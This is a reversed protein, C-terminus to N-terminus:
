DEDEKFFPIASGKFDLTHISLPKQTFFNKDVRYFENFPIFDFRMFPFLSNLQTLFDQSAEKTRFHYKNTPTLYSEALVNQKMKKSRLTLMRWRTHIHHEFNRPYLDQSVHFPYPNFLLTFIPDFFMNDTVLSYDTPSIHVPHSRALIARFHSVDFPRIRRPIPQQYRNWAFDQFYPFMSPAYMFGSRMNSSVYPMERLCPVLQFPLKRHVIANEHLLTLNELFRKVDHLFFSSIGRNRPHKYFKQSDVFRRRIMLAEILHALFNFQQANTQNFNEYFDLLDERVNISDSFNHRYIHENQLLQDVFDFFEAFMDPYFTAQLIASSDHNLVVATPPSVDAPDFHHNVARFIDFLKSDPSLHPRM